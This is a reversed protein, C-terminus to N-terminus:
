RCRTRWHRVAAGFSRHTHRVAKPMGPPARFQVGAARRRGSRRRPVRRARRRDARGPAADADPRRAGAHDGVAHAPGTVALAHEVEGRKWAPSLLVVAAGLRWIARVAVVFEPRNSSMLAVRRGPRVGRQQLAAAMGDALAELEPLSYQREGFALATARCRRSGGVDQSSGSRM